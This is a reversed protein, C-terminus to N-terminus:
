IEYDRLYQPLRRERQSRTRSEVKPSDVGQSYTSEHTNDPVTKRPTNNATAMSVPKESSEPTTASLDHSTSLFLKERWNDDEQYEAIEGVSDVVANVCKFQSADRTIRRGDTVRRASIASGDIRYIIYTVPEYATSWKNRKRQKILVYDGVVFKHERTNRNEARQKITEKYKRDKEEMLKERDQRDREWEKGPHDLKSRVTRNMLAEYPAVGTAPHPTSRYGTLMNSIAINRNGGELHSIQETKNLVRMFSEAEGNARPHEPTIRHHVFGEEEAFKKFQASNFPPGNDSEIRNPTGYTSFMKKLKETTSECSTSYVKEVEPYRTRKDVAVLNYHGDPYPGGFDIAVTDWPKEPIETMKVPEKQHEKTTVQCEYCRGIIDEVISNLRPFWYRNRLMSKTKTMGFHGMSHAAKVVQRQLARPIVIQQLKFIVGDVSYLEDRVMYFPAIEETKKYKEWDGKHIRENVSCLQEDQLTERVIDKMIVAHETEIVHKIMRETSDTGTTSLPHRSLFDLPDAEDKGPEYVLTYDVNQMEMVWKEIRPPLQATARNFLPILPKHATIIKFHPAGLLYMTFRRKAWAVALADKETQSYRKETDTMTRSIFHVPQLGRVTQQFLGASLGENFSAETRVVIPKKPDFYAIIKDNTISDKLKEFADKEVSGWRYKTDKRTLERLPATISSYGPIFKQLYGVMGLFSRVATKTEPTKSEKVAQVKDGTPKLGDKTFLYGYFELEEVGFQCKEPNFTIGFDKARQLVAELTRNHEEVTRGGLLIDDRQNLCKPIDAFIKYIVEDFIDQSAKAGFVLRKPRMNGWPTSFTVVERSKPDLLLQHYGQKMDLKSFTKCEHFKYTFDEVVTAQTIRSREMYKNPIRLDVSARIMHPELKDKDTKSFRPKPQVVLPSCWTVPEGQPVEEFIEEKVGEELWKKLPGQLYYPVHRAKQAKPVTEEKMCFTGYIERDNKKDHILGIGEFVDKFKDTIEKIQTKMPKEENVTKIIQPDTDDIRMHNPEALSGDECIKIMGLEQLTTKSLLPPSDMRGKLVIFKAKTGCTKNRVITKFEGKVALETQITNVKVKSPQLLVNEESRHVLAKFQHEDMLNVEAGSDPEARVDVDGLRVVVTDSTHGSKKIKRIKLHTNVKGIFEDDSSTSDQVETAKKVDHNEKKYSKKKSKREKGPQDETQTRCVSAFHNYRKCKNCQKGYAPCNEGPKHVGSRGCYSCAGTSSKQQYTKKKGTYKPKYSSSQAQKRVKGVMGTETKMATVQRSIDEVQGAESLFQTLNWKKNIAKQILNQNEITQILHELIRENCGAGFECENAKERLRAAYAVIPEEINPRMKLFLFRSHHMNKKPMFYDNLKTKLKQFNDLVVGEQPVPNPLSKALRTVEKGGYILLADCKDETNTIKFYRFEREIGELWEEWDKGATIPDTSPMFLPSKLNRTETVVTVNVAQADGEDGM